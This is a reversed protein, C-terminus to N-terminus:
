RMRTYSFAKKDKKPISRAKTFLMNSMSNELSLSAVLCKRRGKPCKSVVM